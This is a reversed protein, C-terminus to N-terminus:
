HFFSEAAAPAPSPSPAPVTIAVVANGQADKAVHEVRVGAFTLSEGVALPAQLKSNDSVPANLVRLPGEGTALSTDMTYVLLGAKPINSDYHMPARFEVVIGTTNLTSPTPVVILKISSSAAASLPALTM